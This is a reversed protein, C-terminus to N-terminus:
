ITEGELADSLQEIGQTVNPRHPNIAHVRRLVDLAEEERGVERLITALGIMAGFHRPELELARSLDRMALGYREAQFHATARTNWGEAFDPAHDTLATLHELAIDIDGEELADRGRQLLLDMAPSGSKSLEAVIAREIQQWGPQDPEALRAFLRDLGSEEAGPETAAPPSVGPAAGDQAHGPSWALAAAVVTVLLTPRSTRQPPM